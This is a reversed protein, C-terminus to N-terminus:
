PNEEFLHLHFLLCHLGQDSPEELLLSIKTQVTQGSRDTQFSLIMVTTKKKLESRSMPSSITYVPIRRGDETRGDVNEFSMEESATLGIREM